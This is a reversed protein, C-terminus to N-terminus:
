KLKVKNPFLWPVYLTPKATNLDECLYKAYLPDYCCTLRVDCRRTHYYIIYGALGCKAFVDSKTPHPWVGKKIFIRNPKYVKKRFSMRKKM